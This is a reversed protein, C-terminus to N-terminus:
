RSSDHLDRGARLERGPGRERLPLPGIQDKSDLDLEVGGLPTTAHLRTPRDGYLQRPQGSDATVCAATSVWLKVRRNSPSVATACSLRRMSRPSTKPRSPGFPDPVVVVMRMSHPSSSGDSPDASTAPISTVTAGSCILCRM